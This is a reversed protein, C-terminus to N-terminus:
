SSDVEIRKKPKGTVVASNDLWKEVKETNGLFNEIEIYPKGRDNDGLMFPNAFVTDIVKKIEEVSFENIRAKIHKVKSETKKRKKNLNKLKYSYYEWVENVEANDEIKKRKEEINDRKEERKERREERQTFNQLKPTVKNPIETVTNRNRMKRMREAADTESGILEPVKNLLYEDQSINEILDNMKLYNLTMKVNEIDEDLELSLQEAIDEETQEFKIIGEKKISLLQMKLYVITFTDGGAIKRLKKIQRTNFFDDKLKLWYFKKPKSAM